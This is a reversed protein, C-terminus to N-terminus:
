EQADNEAVGIRRRAVNVAIEALTRLFNDIIISDAENHVGEQDDQTAACHIRPHISTLGNPHTIKGNEERLM